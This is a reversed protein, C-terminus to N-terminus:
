GYLFILLLIPTQLMDMIIHLIAYNRQSMQAVQQTLQLRSFGDTILM